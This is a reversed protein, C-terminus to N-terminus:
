TFKYFKKKQKNSFEKIVTALPLDDKCIDEEAQDIMVKSGSFAYYEQPHWHYVPTESEPNEVRDIKRFRIAIRRKPTGDDHKEIVSNDVKYDVLQILKRTEDAEREYCILEEISVKQEATMGEFPAKKRRNKVVSGLRREMDLKKFLHRTDAHIAFGARSAMKLRVTKESCGKKRLKKIQRCLAQKNRKRLRVHDHYFVYGCVDNGTWQPRINWSRNVELLYDRALTMISLEVIIRLFVKDAHKIVINDAFRSYHQLGESVYRAFKANLYAVGKALEAAQAPTRCTLLCDTVYRSQWYRFREPDAGIDFCRLALRDFPALFLGALIQSLKVGLVLGQPFSDIFRDIFLLWAPDKIKERIRQMMLDHNISPFYHHIDMQVFYYVEEQSCRRLEAREQRVFYHTGKHPVCAPARYYLSDFLWQEVPLLVAWEAVHDDVPAKHVIRHKPKFVELSTYGQPHWTQAAYQDLIRQLNGELDAMFQQVEPRGRKGRSFGDFADEFNQFTVVDPTIYGKRKMKLPTKATPKRGTYIRNDAKRTTRGDAAYM